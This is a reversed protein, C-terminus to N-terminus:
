FRPGAYSALESLGVMNKRLGLWARDSSAAGRRAAGGGIRPRLTLVHVPLMSSLCVRPEAFCVFLYVFGLCSPIRYM